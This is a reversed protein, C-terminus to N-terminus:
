KKYAFTATNGLRGDNARYRPTARNMARGFLYTVDRTLDGKYRLTPSTSRIVATLVRGPQIHRKGSGKLVSAIRILAKWYDSDPKHPNEGYIQSINQIEGSIATIAWERDREDDTM